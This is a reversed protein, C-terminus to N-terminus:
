YYYYFTNPSKYPHIFEIAMNIETTAVEVSKYTDKVVFNKNMDKQEETFKVSKIKNIIKRKSPFSRRTTFSTTTQAVIPTTTTSQSSATHTPSLTTTETSTTFLPDHNPKQLPPIRHIIWQPAVPSSPWTYQSYTTSNVSFFVVASTAMVAYLLPTLRIMDIAFFQSVPLSKQEDRTTQNISAISIM